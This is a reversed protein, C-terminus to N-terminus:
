FPVEAEEDPVIGDSVPNTPPTEVSAAVVERVAIIEMQALVIQGPVAVAAAEFFQHLLERVNTASCSGLLMEPDLVVTGSIKIEIAFRNDRDLDSPLYKSQVAQVEIKIPNSDYNTAYSEKM